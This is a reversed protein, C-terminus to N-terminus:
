LFGKIVEAIEAPSGLIVMVKKSGDGTSIPIAAKKGEVKGVMKKGKYLRSNYTGVNVGMKTCADATSMGGARLDGIKQMLEDTLKKQAM